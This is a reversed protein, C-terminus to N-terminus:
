APRRGHKGHRGKLILKKRRAKPKNKKKTQIATKSRAQAHVNPILIAAPFTILAMALLLACRQFKRM